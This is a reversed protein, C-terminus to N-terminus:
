KVTDDARAPQPAPEAVTSSPADDDWPVRETPLGLHKLLAAALSGEEIESDMERSFPYVGAVEFLYKAPGVKGEKAAEILKEAIESISAAVLNKINRRLQALDGPKCNKLASATTNQGNGAATSKEQEESKKM